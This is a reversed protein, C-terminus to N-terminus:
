TRSKPSSILGGDRTRVPLSGVNAFDQRATEPLRTIVPYRRNGDAVVGAQKGAFATEIISNTTRSCM